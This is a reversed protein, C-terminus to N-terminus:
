GALWWILLGLGALVGVVFVVFAGGSSPNADGEHARHELAAREQAKREEDSMFGKIQIAGDVKTAAPITTCALRRL